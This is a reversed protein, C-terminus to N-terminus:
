LNNIISYLSLALIVLASTKIRLSVFWPVLIGEQLLKKDIFLLYLFCFILGLPSLPDKIIVLCWALLTIFNSHVFLNVSTNKFLYIGWHIGAIFSVIVAGYTLILYEYNIGLFNPKVSCIIVVGFFPLTGAYTLFQALNKKVM